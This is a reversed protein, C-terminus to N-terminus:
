KTATMLTYQWPMKALKGAAFDDQLRAIGEQFSKKDIFGLVSHSKTRVQNMIAEDMAVPDSLTETEFKSFGAERAAKEIKVLSHYRALDVELVGPFYVSTFKVRLDNETETGILLVGGDTLHHNSNAIFFQPRKLHHLLDHAYICPFIRDFPFEKDLDAIRLESACDKVKAKALMDDSKDCGYGRFGSRRYIELLDHGTGCGADLFNNSKIHSLFFDVVGTYAKRHEEYATAEKGGHTYSNDM